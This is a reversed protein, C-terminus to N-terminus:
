LGGFLLVDLQDKVQDLHAQADSNLPHTHEFVDLKAFEDDSFTGWNHLRAYEICDAGFQHAMDYFEVIEKYNDFQVIMRLHMKIGKESCRAQTWALAHQMDRWKGGRRLKEYTSARAADVTITIKEVHNIMDGLRHWRQPMLLGNTQICIKLNPFDNSNISNVFRLLMPSAFLEGSTSLHLRITQDTPLPFLNQKLKQGLEEQREREDETTLQVETRCSPCSLNCTVDGAFFIEHPMTWRRTDELQWQVSPPLNSADNFINNRIAGCTDANCYIYSGDAISRRIDQALTSGLLESISTDFLNGVTIPMWANCGCLRVTGLYTVEISVFPSLCIKGALQKPPFKQRQLHLIVTQTM